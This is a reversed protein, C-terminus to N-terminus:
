NVVLLIFFWESHNTVTHKCLVRVLVDCAQSHKLLDDQDISEGELYFGNVAHRVLDLVVRSLSLRVDFHFIVVVM